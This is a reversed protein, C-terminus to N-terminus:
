YASGAASAAQGRANLATPTPQQASVAHSLAVALGDSPHSVPIHRRHSAPRSRCSIACGITPQFSPALALLLALVESGPPAGESGTRTRMRRGPPLTAM